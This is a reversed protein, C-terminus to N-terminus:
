SLRREYLNDKMAVGEKEPSSSVRVV